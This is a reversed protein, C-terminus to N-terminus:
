AKLLMEKKIANAEEDIIESWLASEELENVPIRDQYRKLFGFSFANNDSDWRRWQIIASWDWRDIYKDLLEYTLKLSSNGSLETWDWKDKFQEIIEDYLLKEDVSGSFVKWDILNAFDKILEPTWNISSNRSVKSWDLEHHHLKMMERTLPYDESIREMAEKRIQKKLLFDQMNNTEM